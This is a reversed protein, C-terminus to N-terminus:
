QFIDLKKLDTVRPFVTLKDDNDCVALFIGTEDEWNQEKLKKRLWAEDHGISSLNGEMIKGDMIVNAVLGEQRVVIKMDECTAPRVNSNPLFSITGNTELIAYYIDAVNFYGGIRMQMLVDNVDLKAKRMNKELLQGREIIVVTVGVLFRRLHISHITGLSIFIACLAYIAMAIIPYHFPLERDFAMQAAISGISIGVVYDFFNMQSIQKKGMLFTFVFLVAASFFARGVIELMDM